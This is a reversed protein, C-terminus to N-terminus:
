PSGGGAKRDPPAWRNRRLLSNTVQLSALLRRELRNWYGPPPNAITTGTEVRKELSHALWGEESIIGM